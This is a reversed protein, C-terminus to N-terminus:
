TEHKPTPELSSSIWSLYLSSGAVFPLAVIEPVDYPHVKAIFAELESYIDTRTKILLLLESASEIKGQWLYVSSISPLINVCAALKDAVLSEALKRATLLDPCTCLVLCYDAPM